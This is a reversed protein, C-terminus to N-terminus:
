LGFCPVSPSVREGKMVAASVSSWDSCFCLSSFKLHLVHQPFVVLFEAHDEMKM